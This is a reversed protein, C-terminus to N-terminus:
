TKRSGRLDHITAAGIRHAHRTLEIGLAQEEEFVPAVLEMLANGLVPNPHSRAVQEIGARTRQLAEHAGLMYCGQEDLKHRDIEIFAGATDYALKSALREAAEDRSIQKMGGAM